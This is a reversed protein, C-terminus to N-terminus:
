LGGAPKKSRKDKELLTASVGSQSFNATLAGLGPGIEVIHDGAQIGLQDVIWKAMNKDHLFNQGFSYLAPNSRTSSEAYTPAQSALLMRWNAFVKNCKDDREQASKYSLWRQNLIGIAFIMGPTRVRTALSHSSLRM